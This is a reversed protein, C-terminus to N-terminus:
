KKQTCPVTKTLFVTITKGNEKTNKWLFGIKKTRMFNEPYLVQNSESKLLKKKCVSRFSQTNCINTHM